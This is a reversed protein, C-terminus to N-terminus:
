LPLSQRFALNQVSFYEKKLALVYRVKTLSHVNRLAVSFLFIKRGFLSQRVKCLAATRLPRTKGKCHSILRLLESVCVKCTVVARFIWPLLIYCNYRKITQHAATYGILLSLLLVANPITLSKTDSLVPALLTGRSLGVSLRTQRATLASHQWLSYWWAPRQQCLPILAPLCYTFCTFSIRSATDRYGTYGIATLGLSRRRVSRYRFLLGGKPLAWFFFTERCLVYIRSFCKRCTDNCVLRSFVLVIYNRCIINKTSFTIILLIIVATDRMQLVKYFFTPRLLFHQHGYFVSTSYTSNTVHCKSFYVAFARYLLFHAARALPASELISSLYRQRVANTHYNRNHIM